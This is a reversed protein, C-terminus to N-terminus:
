GTFNIDLTVTIPDSFTASLISAAQEIGARFSAAAATNAMSAADFILDFTIGGSTEAVVSGPGTSSNQLNAGTSSEPPPAVIQGPSPSMPLLVSAASEGHGAAPFFNTFDDPGAPNFLGDSPDLPDTIFRSRM